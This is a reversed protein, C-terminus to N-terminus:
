LLPSPPLLPLPPPLLAASAFRSQDASSSSSILLLLLLLLLLGEGGRAEVVALPTHPFADANLVTLSFGAVPTHSLDRAGCSSGLTALISLSATARLPM